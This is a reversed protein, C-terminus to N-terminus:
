TGNGHHSHSAALDLIRQIDRVDAHGSDDAQKVLTGIGSDAIPKAISHGTSADYLMRDIAHQRLEVQKFLEDMERHIAADDTPLPPEQSPAIPNQAFVLALLLLAHM